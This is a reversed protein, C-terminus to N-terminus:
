MDKMPSRILEMLTSRTILFVDPGDNVRGYYLATDTGAVTPAFNILLTKNPSALNGPESLLTVQFTIAPLQLAKTGDTRDQRQRRDRHELRQEAVGALAELHDVVVQGSERSPPAVSTGARM